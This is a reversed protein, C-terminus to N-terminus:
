RTNHAISTKPSAYTLSTLSAAFQQAFQVTSRDPVHGRLTLRRLSPWGKTDEWVAPTFALFSWHLDPSYTLFSLDELAPSVELFEEVSCKPGFKRTM